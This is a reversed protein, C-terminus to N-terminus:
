EGTERSQDRQLIARPVKGWYSGEHWFRYHGELDLYYTYLPKDSDYEDWILLELDEDLKPGWNVRGESCRVTKGDLMIYSRWWNRNYFPGSGEVVGYGVVPRVEIEPLKIGLRKGYIVYEEHGREFSTKEAPTASHFGNKDYAHLAREGTESDEREFILSKLDPDFHTGISSGLNLEKPHDPDGLSYHLYRIRDAVSGGEANTDKMMVCVVFDKSGLWYIDDFFEYRSEDFPILKVSREVIDFLILSPGTRSYTRIIPAVVTFRGDPSTNRRGRFGTMKGYDGNGVDLIVETKGGYIDTSVLKGDQEFLFTWAKNGTDLISDFAPAEGIGTPPPSIPERYEHAVLAVVGAVAIVGFVLLGKSRGSMHKRM